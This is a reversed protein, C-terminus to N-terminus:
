GRVGVAEGAQRRLRPSERVRRGDEVERLRVRAGGYVPGGIQVVDPELPEVLVAHDGALAAEEAEVRVSGVPGGRPLNGHQAPLCLADDLPTSENGATMVVLRDDLNELVIRAVLEELDVLVLEEVDREADEVETLAAAHSEEDPAVREAAEQRAEDEQ